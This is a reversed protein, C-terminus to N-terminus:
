WTRKMAFLREPTVRMDSTEVVVADVGCHPCVPIEGEDWFDQVDKFVFLRQCNYCGCRADPNMREYTGDAM